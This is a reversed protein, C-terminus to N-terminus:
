DGREEDEDGEDDEEDENGEETEEEEEIREHLEDMQASAVELSEEHHPHRAKLEAFVSSLLVAFEAMGIHSALGTIYTKAVKEQQKSLRGMTM